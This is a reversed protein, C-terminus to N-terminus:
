FGWPQIPPTGGDLWKNLDQYFWPVMGPNHRGLEECLVGAWIPKQDFHIVFICATHLIMSVWNKIDNCCFQGVINTQPFPDRAEIESAVGIGNNAHVLLRGNLVLGM